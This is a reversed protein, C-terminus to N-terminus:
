LKHKISKKGLEMNMHKETYLATSGLNLRVRSQVPLMDQKNEIDKKIIGLIKNFPGYCFVLTWDLHCSSIMLKFGM